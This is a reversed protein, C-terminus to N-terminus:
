LVQQNTAVETVLKCFLEGRQEYNDFQDWSACGPSLLLVDGEQMNARACCVAEQLTEFCRVKGTALETIVKRTAGIGYMCGVRESQKALLTLDVQKDYGGVILHM